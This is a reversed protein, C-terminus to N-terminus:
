NKTKIPKTQKNKTKNQKTKILAIRQKVLLNSLVFIVVFCNTAHKTLKLFRIGFTYIKYCTHRLPVKDSFRKKQPNNQVTQVLHICQEILKNPLFHTNRMRPCILARCELSTRYINITFYADRCTNQKLFCLQQYHSYTSMYAHMNCYVKRNEKNILMNIRESGFDCKHSWLLLLTVPKDSRIVRKM